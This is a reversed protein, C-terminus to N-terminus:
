CVMIRKELKMKLTDLKWQTKNQRLGILSDGRNGEQFGAESRLDGDRRFIPAKLHAYVTALADPRRGHDHTDIAAWMLMEYLATPVSMSHGHRCPWDREEHRIPAFVTIAFFHQGADRAEDGGVPAHAISGLRSLPTITETM